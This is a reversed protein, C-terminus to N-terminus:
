RASPFKKAINVVDAIPLILAPGDPNKSDRVAGSQHLEVCDTEQASHSSKLWGDPDHPVKMM